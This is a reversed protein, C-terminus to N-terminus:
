FANAKFCAVFGTVDMDFEYFDTTNIGREVAIEAFVCNDKKQRKLDYGTFCRIIEVADKGTFIFKNKKSDSPRVEYNNGDTDQLIVSITSTTPVTKGNKKEITLAVTNETVFWLARDNEENECSTQFYFVEDKTDFKFNWVTNNGSRTNAYRVLEAISSVDKPKAFGVAAVILCIFITMIKKM